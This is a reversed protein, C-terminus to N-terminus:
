VATSTIAFFMDHAHWTGTIRELVNTSAGSLSNERPESLSLSLNSPPSPCVVAQRILWLILAPQTEQLQKRPNYVTITPKKITNTKLHKLYTHIWELARHKSDKFTYFASRRFSQTCRLGFENQRCRQQLPGCQNPEFHKLDKLDVWCPASRRQSEAFCFCSSSVPPHFVYCTRDM